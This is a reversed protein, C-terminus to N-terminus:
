NKERGASVLDSVRLAISPLPLSECVGGMRVAAGPMGYIVATSEDEAITYGGAQRIEALGAAGDQGM